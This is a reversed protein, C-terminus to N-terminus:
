GLDCFRTVSLEGGAEALLALTQEFEHSTRQAAAALAYPFLPGSEPADLNMHAHADPPLLRLALPKLPPVLYGLAELPLIRGSRLRSHSMIGPDLIAIQEPSAAAGPRHEELWLQVYNSHAYFDQVAHSLRGFAQWAPLPSGGGQITELLLARQGAVFADGAQFANDDYHYEPHGVQGRLSDQGLNAAIVAELARHSVLGALAAATIQRHYRTLM